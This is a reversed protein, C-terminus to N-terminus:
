EKGAPKFFKIVLPNGKLCLSDLLLEGNEAKLPVDCSRGTILDVVVPRGTFGPWNKIKITCIRNNFERSYPQASWVALMREGPLAPNVFGFAMIGNDASISVKDWDKVLDGRISSRHLPADEIKIQVERDYVYGNFLSTMRQIAYYAPKPSHDARIIGFNAEDRSAESNYDDIFDYQCAAMVPLTLGLIFRRVLYISQAEESFGAYLGKESKGNFWFTTFGFETLWISRMKGTKRFHEIYSNILGTFSGEADGIRIGDRKELKWSFPVKEPPMSYTYPHDVVGDLAPSVGLNLAHFNTPSSAGLGIVTAEPRVQKIHDALANTYKLHEKVWKSVSGDREYGNWTGGFKAKWGFNNPENGLEYVQVYPATDRVAAEVYKRYEDISMDPYLRLCLIIKLGKDVAYKMWQLDYERVKFNGQSDKEVACGDRVWKLGAAAILDILERYPRWEKFANGTGYSFHACTGFTSDKIDLSNVPRGLNIAASNRGSLKVTRIVRSGATGDLTLELLYVNNPNGGDALKPSYNLVKDGGAANLRYRQIRDRGTEPLNISFWADDTGIKKAKIELAPGGAAPLWTGTLNWGCGDMTFNEGSLGQPLPVDARNMSNSEGAYATIGSLLAAMIFLRFGTM